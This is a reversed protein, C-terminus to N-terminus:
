RPLSYEKQRRPHRSRGYLPHFPPHLAFREHPLPSGMNQTQFSTFTFRQQIFLPHNSSIGYRSFPDMGSTPEDLLLIKPRGVLAIGVSLKRKQGSRLLLFDMLVSGHVHRQVGYEGGSLEKTRADRKEVLDVDALIQNVLTELEEETQAINKLGAFIRLHEVVTLEELLIDHQPCVGLPHNDFISM